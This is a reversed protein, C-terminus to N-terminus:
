DDPDPDLDRLDANGNPIRGSSLRNWLPDIQNMDFAEGNLAAKARRVAEWTFGNRDIGVQAVHEM